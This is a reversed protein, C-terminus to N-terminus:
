KIMAQTEAWGREVEAQHKTAYPGIATVQAQTRPFHICTHGPFNNDTIHQVEHPVSHTTAMRITGDAFIVWVSKPTWTNGGFAEEMKATDAATLPEAEAHKGYSFMHVQWSIGTSYDYVTAYPYQRCANRVTSYWYEYVVNAATVRVTTGLGLSADPATTVAPASPTDGSGTNLNNLAAITQSGAIGDATLANAKQFEVLARYTKIGFKGDAVGSLYGLAILREQILTVADGVDGKRVLATQITAPEPTGTPAPTATPTVATTSYLAALTKAGAVGDRVLGNRKQFNYVAEATDTGYIGDATGSLYGLTILREQLNTVDTGRMGKKLTTFTEVAGGAMAGNDMIATSAYLAVQTDYGAVGDVTLGNNRQFARIAAVDDAKCEGDLISDYYGLQTLRQQLRLVADGKTGKRIVVVNDETIPAPTATAVTTTAVTPAPTGLPVYSASLAMYSFLVKNTDTGAVGDSELGNKNQFAKLAAVSATGFVGDAKGSLYGLDILRQQVLKADSGTDGKRVVDGPMTFTPLATPTPTPTPTPTANASLGGLDLLLAQTEAGCVGDQTLGNKKQFAKVAKVTASDYTGSISGTYYGLESLKSQITRVIIGKDGSKVSLGSIAPLTRIETKTGKSNKPKGNFIFAQLNADAIGTIPYENVRQLAMVAQATGAGYIGDATGNLYGLEILAEQLAMVQDGDAGSQLVQYSGMDTTPELTAGPNPMATAVVITALRLYKKQCYGTTGNYTVKAWIGNVGEVTVAAGEPISALRKASTSRAKRLNVSGTTVTQYPYGAATFSDGSSTGASSKDVYQKFVYGTKGDYEIRYFNGAAGVVTVTEGEPIRAIVNATSSNATRRMNTDDTTVGTFPYSEALAAGIVLVLLLALGAVYGLKNKLLEWFRM